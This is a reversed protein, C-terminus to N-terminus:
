KACNLMQETFGQMDPPAETNFLLVRTSPGLSAEQRIAELNPHTMLGILAALGAAGSEGAPVGERYLEKVAQSALDDSVTIYYDVCDRLIPWATLSPVGSNLTAMVSDQPASTFSIQGDPSKISAMCCDARDPEVVM